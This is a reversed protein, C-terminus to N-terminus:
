KTGAKPEAKVTAPQGPLWIDNQWTEPRDHENVPAEPMTMVAWLAGTGFRIGLKPIGLEAAIDFSVLRM